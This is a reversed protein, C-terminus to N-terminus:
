EYVVPIVLATSGLVLLIRTGDDSAARVGQVEHYPGLKEVTADLTDEAIGPTAYYDPLIDLPEPSAPHYLTAGDGSVLFGTNGLWVPSRGTGIELLPEQQEIDWLTHQPYGPSGEDGTMSHAILTRGDPSFSTPVQEGLFDFYGPDPTLTGDESVNWILTPTAHWYDGTILVHHTNDIALPRSDRNGIEYDICSTLRMDCQKFIDFQGLLWGDAFFSLWGFTLRFDYTYAEGTDFNWVVAGRDEFTALWAGDPSWVIQEFRGLGEVRPTEILTLDPISLLLVRGESIVTLMTGDPSFALNGDGFPIDLESYSELIFYNMPMLEAAEDGLAIQTLDWLWLTTGPYLRGDRISTGAAYHGDPSIAGVFVLGREPPNLLAIGTGFRATPTDDQATAIGALPLAILTLLLLLMTICRLM